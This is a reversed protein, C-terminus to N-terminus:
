ARPGRTSRIWAEDRERNERALGDLWRDWAAEREMPTDHEVALAMRQGFDCLDAWARMIEGIDDPTAVGTPPAPPQSPSTRVDSITVLRELLARPLSLM